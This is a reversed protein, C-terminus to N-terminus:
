KYNFISFQNNIIKGIAECTMIRYEGFALKGLEVGGIKIRKLLFVEYGLAKFMRRIQRKKGESIIIECSTTKNIENKTVNRVTCAQTQYSSKIGNKELIIEIGNELKAIHSQALLGKIKVEYTKNIKNEPKLIKNALTGDNTILMLGCSNLDLRGVPFLTNKIEESIIKDTKILDLVSKQKGANVKSSIIGEPKNIIIYIKDKKIKIIEGDLTLRKKKPDIHLELSKIKNGNLLIRGANILKEAEKRTRIKGSKSLWYYIRKKPM